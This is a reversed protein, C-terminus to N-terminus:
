YSNLAEKIIDKIIFAVLLIGPIVVMLFWGLKTRVFNSLYGLYPIKFLHVGSVQSLTVPWSDPEELADGKTVLTNGNISLVRHTVLEKGRQYTVVVGPKVGSGLPGEPPGTVVMDGMNIAPKMSESRVLYMNYDPSLHTFLLSSVAAALIISIFWGFAKV